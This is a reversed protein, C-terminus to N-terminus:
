AGAGLALLGEVTFRIGLDVIWFFLIAITSLILVLVTSVITEQRSTWTVKRAEQRVQALYQFPNVSRKKATAGDQKPKAPVKDNRNRTM